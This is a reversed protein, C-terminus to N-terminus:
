EPAEEFVARQHILHGFRPHVIDLTFAFRRFDLETHSVTLAGPSLWRALYIRRRAWAPGVDIFYRESQFTLANSTASVVLTMGIGWGVHEELGTPGDFRKSSHIVQPFASRRAYLRTWIQGGTRMDETVTVVSPVDIDRSTPLPGGILRAMQALAMGTRTMATEVIRGTYVVTRGGALRKSFRRRIAEPLERWAARGLLALFRPDGLVPHGISDPGCAENAQRPRTVSM